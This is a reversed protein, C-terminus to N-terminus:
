QTSGKKVTDRPSWDAPQRRHHHIAVILIETGRDHYIISYPFRRMPLHQLRDTVFPFARPTRAIRSVASDVARAFEYGLGVARTEYWAQAELAEQQAEPRLIVKVSPM